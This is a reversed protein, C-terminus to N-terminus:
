HAKSTEGRERGVPKVIRESAYTQGTLADAFTVRLLLTGDRPALPSELPMEVAYHTGTIGSRYADRLQVPTLDAHLTFEQEPHGSEGPSLAPMHRAEVSLTGVAPVFRQRGDRPVIFVGVSRVPKSVDGPLFGSLSDIEVGAVRPIAELVQPDLAAQRALNAEALKATLERERAALGEVQKRLDLNEGRLRDNVGELNSKCAPLAALALAFLARAVPSARGRSVPQTTRPEARPTIM